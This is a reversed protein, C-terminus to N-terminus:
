HWPPPLKRHEIGLRFAIRDEPTQLTATSAGFPGAFMEQLCVVGCGMPWSRLDTFPRVQAEADRSRNNERPREPHMWALLRRHGM